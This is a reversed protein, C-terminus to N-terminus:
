VHKALRVIILDNVDWTHYGGLRPEVFVLGCVDTFLSVIKGETVVRGAFLAPKVSYNALAKRTLIVRDGCHFAVGKRNRYLNVEKTKNSRKQIGTM